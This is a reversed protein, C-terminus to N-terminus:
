PKLIQIMLAIMNCNEIYSKFNIKNYTDTITHYDAHDEVGIYIFPINKQHFASHDSQHTWDNRPSGDDHGMLLNVSTKYQIEDVAYKFSPYHKIGCAFIENNDSRAIMDMNLNFKIDAINITKTIQHIFNYAGELGTEERDLVAFILSYPHPNRKFYNAIALLCAVGSANDDAGYYTTGNLAKGLHDYHASIVIYKDPYLSGKVWGIINKGVKTGNIDFGIFNQTLANAFSDVGALRMRLLILEIANTHGQTGPKRGECIDSALYQLDNIIQLSDLIRTPIIGPKTSLIARQESLTPYPLTAINSWDKHCSNTCIALITFILFIFVRM